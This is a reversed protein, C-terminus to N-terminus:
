RDFISLPLHASVTFHPADVLQSIRLDVCASALVYAQVFSLSVQERFVLGSSFPTDSMM